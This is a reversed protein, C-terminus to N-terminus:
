AKVKNVLNACQKIFVVAVKFNLFSFFLLSVTLSCYFSGRSFWFAALTNFAKQHCECEGFCHQWATQSNGGGTTGTLPPLMPLKFFEIFHTILQCGISEQTPAAGPQFAEM